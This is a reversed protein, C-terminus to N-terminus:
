QLSDYVSLYNKVMADISFAQLARERGKSGHEICLKSDGIYDSLRGALESPNQREVLFGTKGHEVLEPNGGVRTAIVPLGSAMAELITNSIGEAQSPLVFVDFGRMLEAVDSREGPLWAQDLLDNEVLLQRVETRLPGEGIMVLGVANKSESHRKLLEVFARALTMQDKVGHMRGVTGIILRKEADPWPCDGVVVKPRAPQFRETDVGNCIRRIKSDPIGVKERLYNDLHGSLPIFRDIILGLMRRLLRYKKNSGDPDFVDWGHEGHVRHKVGALLAPVQYEIAALNRTHVIAPKIQKLLRYMKVFSQWDQGERKNLEYIEVDKRQLRNKFDTSNKLCIIVHRYRDSPMRNILNVLGNELGGVGLSYIIHAILPPTQNLPM